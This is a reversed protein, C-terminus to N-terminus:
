WTGYVAPKNVPPQQFHAADAPDVEPLSDRSVSTKSAVIDAKPDLGIWMKDTPTMMNILEATTSSALDATDANVSTDRTIAYGNDGKGKIVKDVYSNGQRIHNFTHTKCQGQAGVKGWRRVLVTNGTAKSTVLLMSYDKTGGEHELHVLRVSYSYSSAM